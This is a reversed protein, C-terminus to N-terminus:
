ESKRLSRRAHALLQIYKPDFPAVLQKELICLINALVVREAEDEVRLNEKQDVRTLFEFLVLAEEPSLKVNIAEQVESKKGSALM